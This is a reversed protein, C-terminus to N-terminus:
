WNAANCDDTGCCRPVGGVGSRKQIRFMTDGLDATFILIVQPTDSENSRAILKKLFAICIEMCNEVVRPHPGFFKGSRDIAVHVLDHSTFACVEEQSLTSVPFSPTSTLLPSPFVSKPAVYSVLATMDEAMAAGALVIKLQKRSKAALFALQAVPQQPRLKLFVVHTFGAAADQRLEPGHGAFPGSDQRGHGM